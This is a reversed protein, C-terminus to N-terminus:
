VCVITSAKGRICSRGECEAGAHNEWVPITPFRSRRRSHGTSPRAVTGVYPPASLPIERPVGQPRSGSNASRGPLQFHRPVPSRGSARHVSWAIPRFRRGAARTRLCPRRRPGRTGALPPTRGWHPPRFRCHTSASPSFLGSRAGAATRTRSLKPRLTAADGGGLLGNRKKARSTGSRTSWRCAM